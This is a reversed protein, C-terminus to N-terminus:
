HLRLAQIARPMHPPRRLVLTDHASNRPPGDSRSPRPTSDGSSAWARSCCVGVMLVLSVVGLAQAIFHGAVTRATKTARRAWTAQSRIDNFKRELATPNEESRKGRALTWASDIAADKLDYRATRWRIVGGLTAVAIGILIMTM